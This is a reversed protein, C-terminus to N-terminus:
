DGGGIIQADLDQDKVFGGTVDIITRTPGTKVNKFQILEKGLHGRVVLHQELKPM